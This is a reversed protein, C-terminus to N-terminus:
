TPSGLSLSEYLSQTERSPKVGLEAELTAALSAYQKLAAQRQGNRAYATMLLSHYTENLEDTQLLMILERIAKEYHQAALCCNVLRLKGEAFRLRLAERHPVAWEYDLQELYDGHYNELAEELLARQEESDAECSLAAKLLGEFRELDTAVPITLRYVDAGHQVLGGLGYRRLVARLRYLTTHFKADAKELDLVEEPWLADIIQDKSVPQGMHVLYILLDRAKHSRWKVATIEKGDAFIRVPGLLHLTLSPGQRKSTLAAEETGALRECAEAASNRVYESPDDQLSTLASLAAEGGIEMLIPIIRLKTESDGREMLPTLHKLCRVGAKRSARQVFSTEIGKELGHLLLPYYWHYCTVFAQLDNIKASVALARETYEQAEKLDGHLFYLHAQAQCGYALCKLFGMARAQAESRKLLELGLDWSGTRALIPGAVAGVATKNLLTLTEATDVAAKAYTRAEVWKGQLALTRALFAQNLTLVTRDSDHETVYAIGQHFYREAESFRGLNTYVLALQLCSSPFLETLGRKARLAASREAIVLAQETEGWDDYIASMMDQFDYGPMVGDPCLSLARRYLLLAKSPEGSLYTINGLAELIRVLAECDGASETEELCEQLVDLSEKFRGSTYYIISKEIALLLRFRSASLKAEVDFLFDFQEQMAGRGRSIRAKLLQCEALGLDDGIERFLSEAHFVAKQAHGLQGRGTEVLAQLLALRPNGKVDELTIATDFWNEVEQWRGHLLAEEALKVVLDAISGRQGGELFCSIAEHLRGRAIAISAAQGFLSAREKGLKDLLYSRIIPVVRYEGGKQALLLQHSELRRIHDRSASIGLLEDCEAATFSSFVSAKILFDQLEAPVIGLVEKDIYAALAPSIKDQGEGLGRGQQTLFNVMIPWGHSMRAVTDFQERELSPCRLTYFRDLEAESFELDKRGVVQVEGALHLRELGLTGVVDLSLRGGIAIQVQPPLLPVLEGVLQYICPDSIVEWNDLAIVIGTTSELARICFSVASRCLRDRETRSILRQLQIEDITVYEQFAGALHRIFTLPENDHPELSYWATPIPAKQALQSLFVTKGYGAPALVLIAKCGELRPGEAALTREVMTDHYQPCKLKTAILPTHEPRRMAASVKVLNKRTRRQPKELEQMNM